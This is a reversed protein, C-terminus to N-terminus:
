RKVGTAVCYGISRFQEAREARGPLKDLLSGMCGPALLLEVFHERLKQTEDEFRIEQFGSELMIARYTEQTETGPPCVRLKGAPLTGNARLYFDAIGIRGGTRLVRHFERAATYKQKLLSFSCECLLVDFSGTRFPLEEADGVVFSLLHAVSSVHSTRRSNDAMWSSLDITVVRCGYTQALYFASEGKGAAADLVVYQERIGVM